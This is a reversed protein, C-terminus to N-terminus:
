DGEDKDDHTVEQAVSFEATVQDAYAITSTTDNHLEYHIAPGGANYYVTHYTEHLIDCKAGSFGVQNEAGAVDQDSHCLVGQIRILWIIPQYREQYKHSKHSAGDLDDNSNWTHNSKGHLKLEDGPKLIVKSHSQIKWTDTFKSSASPYAFVSDHSLAYNAKNEDITELDDEPESGTTNKPVVRYIDLCAPTANNNRLLVKSYVKIRFKMDTGIHALDADRVAYTMPVQDERIYRLNAINSHIKPLSHSTLRVYECGNAPASMRKIENTYTRQTSIQTQVQKELKAVRKKLPKRHLKAKKYRRRSASAHKTYGSQGPNRVYSTRKKAPRRATPKRGGRRSPGRRRPTSYSNYADYGARMLQNGYRAAELYQRVRALENGRRERRLALDM